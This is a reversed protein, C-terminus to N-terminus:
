LLFAFLFIHVCLEWLSLCLLLNRAPYQTTKKRLSVPRYLQINIIGSSPPLGEQQKPGNWEM